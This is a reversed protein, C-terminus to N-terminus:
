LKYKININQDKILNVNSGCMIGCRELRNGNTWSQKIIEFWPGQLIQEISSYFINTNKNGGAQIMLNKILVHDNHSEVEPGYLRDHLWGCPFVFGDAGIYIEKIRVANCNIQANKAYQTVPQDAIIQILPRYEKNIYKDDNPLSITYDVKGSTNYVELKNDFVHDRKLFRSTKKINFEKFQLQESLLQAEEVQHQNHEFVIYDWIAYGGAQIFAQANQMVKDWMVNRRYIHNTSKLGDIGFAIFDVTSALDQYLKVNGIGGNTHIGVRINANGEKLFRCMSLIHRNTMPDGYTGCFYVEQLQDLLRESFLKKFESLSWKRLPLTPITAGGFYNRPCQPCAANCYNSVELQVTRIDEFKIM